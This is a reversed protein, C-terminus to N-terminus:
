EQQLTEKVLPFGKVMLWKSLLWTSSQPSHEGGAPAKRLQSTQLAQTVGYNSWANGSRGQSFLAM